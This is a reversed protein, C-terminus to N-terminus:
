FCTKNYEDPLIVALENATPLNTHCQDSGEKIVLQMQPSITLQVAESTQQNLIEKVTQYIDIFPNQCEHLMQTLQLLVNKKLAENTNAFCFGTAADPDYLYAQAFSPISTSSHQLFRHLHYLKDQIVFSQIGGTKVDLCDNLNFMCSTFVM